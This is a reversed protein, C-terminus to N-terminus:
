SRLEQKLKNVVQQRTIAPLSHLARLTNLQEILITIFARLVEKSHLDIVEGETATHTYSTSM